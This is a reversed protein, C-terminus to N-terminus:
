KFGTVYREQGIPRDGDAVNHGLNTGGAFDWTVTDGTQITVTPKAGCPPNGSQLTFCQGGNESIYITTSQKAGAVGAGAVVAATVLLTLAPALARRRRSTTRTEASDM